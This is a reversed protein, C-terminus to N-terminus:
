CGREEKRGRAGGLWIGCDEGSGLNPATVGESSASLEPYDGTHAKLWRRMKACERGADAAFYKAQRVADDKSVASGNDGSVSLNGINGITVGVESVIYELAKSSLVDVVYDDLLTCYAENAPLGISGDNVLTQLRRLLNTGIVSQLFGEQARFVAPAIYKGSLNDSASSYQRIRDDSVLMVDKIRTEM